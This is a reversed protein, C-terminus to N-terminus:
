GVGILGFRSEWSKSAAALVPHSPPAHTLWRRAEERAQEMLAHDRVLDGIRLTPLGSQRTGAFDGPGRLQLDREALAFGDNSEAIAKLRERADDSLPSQYLLICHSQEAGRGVRGRLQHLQSLGFREAHEVVMVTANPVDIGVEIVTTSVLVQTENAAFSAMVQEKADRKLRGHLLAVRLDPFVEQSLQEAMATAARVDIKDSDEIIPYIVYAQRGAAVQERVFAWVEERRSEPRVTTLVPKRGAPRDRMLSVDLDAYTTLALTRPIPTATMVLVDPMGKRRLQSRQVVGFRHQEDIIVLGLKSFEVDDQILAHTGVILHIHGAALDALVRRREAAPTRGSLIGVRFRTPALVRAITLLHQEALIETPAMFAVQLGNEMAVLAALLAVITKGAGVDGQLLRNMPQPLEMDRVIERLATKQGATLSFPLVQRAADRIRDTVVPVFPKREAAIAQRRLAVGLQFLFFEEFILRVQAPSRFANLVEVSVADAAAAGPFHAERLAAARSPLQLRALVAAPIPDFVEDPMVELAQFVLRRQLKTTLSGVREYVPVVRGYHLSAEGLRMSERLQRQEAHEASEGATGAGDRSPAMRTAGARRDDNQERAAGGETESARQDDARDRLSTADVDAAAVGRRADSAAGRRRDSARAREGAAEAVEVDGQSDSADGDADAAEPEIADHLPDWLIEYQPNQMQLGHGTLEVKGYLAVLQGRHFVDRLFRQNFWVVTLIGSEDRVKAEFITFGRRRTHRLFTSAIEGLVVATTNPKLVAIRATERRDEYRIPFRLLLDEITALGAHALDAARRAGVGSLTSLPADLFGTSRATTM